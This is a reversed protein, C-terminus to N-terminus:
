NSNLNENNKDTIIKKIKKYDEILQKSEFDNENLASFQVVYASIRAKSKNLLYSIEEQTIDVFYYIINALIMIKSAKNKNKPNTSFMSELKDYQYYDLVTKIVFDCQKIIEERSKKTPIIKEKLLKIFDDESLCSLIEAMLKYTSIVKPSKYNPVKNKAIEELFENFKPTTLCFWTARFQKIFKVSTVESSSEVQTQM